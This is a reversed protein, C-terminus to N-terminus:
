KLYQQIKTKFDSVAQPGKPFAESTGKGNNDLVLWPLSPRPVKMADKVWPDDKNSVDQNQDYLYKRGNNKRILEDVDASMMADFQEAPLDRRNLRDEVVLVHLGSGPVPSPPGVPNLGGGGGMNLFFAAVLCLVAITKNNM